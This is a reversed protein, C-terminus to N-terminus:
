WCFFIIFFERLSFASGCEDNNDDKWTNKKIGMGRVSLIVTCWWSSGIDFGHIYRSLTKYEDDDDNDDHDDDDDDDYANLYIWYVYM